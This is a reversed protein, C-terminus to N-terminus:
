VPQLYWSSIQADPRDDVAAAPSLNRVRRGKVCFSAVSDKLRTDSGQPWRQCMGPMAIVGRRFPERPSTQLMKLPKHAKIHYKLSTGLFSQGPSAHHGDALVSVRLPQPAASCIPCCQGSMELLRLLPVAAPAATPTAPTAAAPHRCRHCCPLHFRTHRCQDAMAAACTAPAPAAAAENYRDCCIAATLVLVSCKRSVDLAWSM